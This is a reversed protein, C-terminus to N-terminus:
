LPSININRKKDWVNFTAPGRNTLFRFPHVYTDLTLVHKMEGMVLLSELRNVFSTKGVDHEGVLILKFESSPIDEVEVDEIGENFPAAEVGADEGESSPALM